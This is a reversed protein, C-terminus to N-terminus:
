RIATAAATPQDVWARHWLELMALNWLRNEHDIGRDLHEDLLLDVAADEFYGRDRTGPDRLVGEIWGRLEGRFWEGIPVGFGQKRRHVLDDPLGRRRALEKLAWKSTGGRLKAEAPLAAAFEHVRHDLLPSRVELAHAMSMRDVKVLLDGPLYTATDLALYRDVGELPPLSLVEDWGKRPGQAAALFEPRCLREIWDPSFHVMTAAYRDHPTRGLARLGRRVRGLRGNVRIFGASRELPRALRQLPELRDGATALRHRPYGAFAEDGGDGSLAVTVHRRTLESLLYTPIASVDAFPEGAHRVSEAVTPVMDPEVLFDEHATGYLQAVRRAHAGESYGAHPFDISFTRVQDAAEAMYSVVLSSDIGGSLFAGLPVDAILRMETAQRLLDDLRAVTEDDSAQPAKKSHDLEWYRSIEVRGREYTLVEGPALKRIGTFGTRPPPVYQLSLYEAIAVPDPTASVLGSALIAAPESGYVIGGDVEAWYLPKVGLRDRALLLRGAESDWLAVAFMGRLSEVFRPGEDEYLHVITECDSGTRFSHGGRELRRRLDRFNYIEGNCTAAVSGTENVLPQAGTVLDIISLRRFGLAVRGPLLLYGDDDPGRHRLADCMRQLTLEDAEVSGAWGAIGCM